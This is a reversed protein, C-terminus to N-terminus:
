GGGEGHDPSADGVVQRSGTEDNTIRKFLVDFYAGNDLCRNIEAVDFGKPLAVMGLPPHSTPLSSTEKLWESVSQPSGHKMLIAQGELDLVYGIAVQDTMLKILEGKRLYYSGWDYTYRYM